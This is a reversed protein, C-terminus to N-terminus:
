RGDLLATGLPSVTHLVSAGHRRSTVLGAGRLATTHRSISSANVHLREALETTTAGGRAATLVAARTTGLLAALERSPRGASLQYDWSEDTVPYVLTPPLDPDALAVPTRRCFFSPVLRLGRGRLHMDRNVVYGVELVPPAWRVTCPLSALLGDVGATLLTRGRHARDAEVAALVMDTHPEIAVRHYSALTDGLDGLLEKDGEALRGAWDPLVSTRSLLTLEHRLRSRPTRRIAEIAQRLGQVGEPPTIFDPFYPGLPALVKLFRLGSRLDTVRKDHRLQRAWSALMPRRDRETLRMRSFVMEWLPDVTAEFRIRGLDEPTFYIRLL